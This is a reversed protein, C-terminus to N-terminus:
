ASESAALDQMSVYTTGRPANGDIVDLAQEM